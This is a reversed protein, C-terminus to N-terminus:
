WLGAIRGTGNPRRFRLGGTRPSRINNTRDWETQPIQARWDSPLPYQIQAFQLDNTGGSDASMNMTIQTSSDVSVIQAFPRVGVGVIGWESSLGATDAMTVIASGAITTASMTRSVTTIIYERNLRQWEDQKCMDMGLRNILANMQQVQPDASSIIANPAQLAMEFCAQRILELLTM